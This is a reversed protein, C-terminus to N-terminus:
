GKRLFFRKPFDNLIRRFALRHVAQKLSVDARSLRHYGRNGSQIGSMLVILRCKHRGGFYEGALMEIGEDSKKRFEVAAHREYGCAFPFDKVAVAERGLELFFLGLFFNSAPFYFYDDPRVRKDLLPQIEFRQCENDHVFLVTEAYVM